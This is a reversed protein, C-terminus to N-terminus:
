SYCSGSNALASQEFSEPFFILKRQNSPASCVLFMLVHKALLFLFARGLAPGKRKLTRTIGADPVPSNGADQLDDVHVVFSNREADDSSAM